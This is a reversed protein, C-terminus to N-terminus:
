RVRLLERQILRYCRSDDEEIHDAVLYWPFGSIDVKEGVALRELMSALQARTLQEQEEPTM